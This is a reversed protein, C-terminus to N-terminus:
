FSYLVGARIRFQGQFQYTGESFLKLQGGLGYTLGATLSPRLRVPRGFGLVIGSGAYLDLNENESLTNLPIKLLASLDLASGGGIDAILRADLGYGQLLLVNRLTVGATLTPELTRNLGAALNFSVLQASASGSLLSAALVLAAQSVPRSCCFLLRM